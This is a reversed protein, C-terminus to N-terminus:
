SLAIQEWDPFGGDKIIKVIAKQCYAQADTLTKLMNQGGSVTGQHVAKSRFDYIRRFLGMLQQRESVTEGLYRAVNLRLRYGVETNNGENLFISEMAIGLDIWKDAVQFDSYSRIWRQVPIALRDQDKRALRKRALYLGYAEAAMGETVRGTERGSGVENLTHPNYSYGSPSVRGKCIHDDDIFSWWVAGYIASSSILSLAECFGANDFDLQNGSVDKYEFVEDRSKNEVKSPNVFIPSVVADVVLVASSALDIDRPGFGSNSGVMFAPFTSPEGSLPVLRIGDAVPIEGDIQMGKVLTIRQCRLSTANVGEVFSKAAYESGRALAIELWHDIFRWMPIGASSGGTVGYEASQIYDEHIYSGLHQVIVQRLESMVSADRVTVNCTEALGRLDPRHHNRFELLWEGYMAPTIQRPIQPGTIESVSLARNLLEVLNATM